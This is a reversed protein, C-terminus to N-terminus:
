IQIKLVREDSNYDSILELKTYGASQFIDVAKSPHEGLGVELVLWGGPKIISKGLEAFRRYFTLGDLEDTLAIKPEYQHVEPMTERMENEPIYPPNSVLLDFRGKPIKKLFDMVKFDINSLKNLDANKKAQTIATESVDVSEILADKKEAGIAIAICGSGSGVELVKPNKITGITHLAVDVVRETEPRPVLVDPTINFQYGYFETKGTIYQLPERVVRRKVWDKLQNLQPRLIPQEFQVYLDIRKYNLLDCLLWEIEQKPSEFGRSKFYDEGWNLIDIVRWIQNGKEAPLGM